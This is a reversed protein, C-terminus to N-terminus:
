IILKKVEAIMQRLDIDPVGELSFQLSQPDTTISDSAMYSKIAPSVGHLGPGGHLVSHGLIKGLARFTGTVCLSQNHTPFRHDAEGEFFLLKKNSSLLMGEDLINVAISLYERVPGSGVADEEEFRVKLGVRLNTQPNKYVGLVERKLQEDGDMRSVFIRQEPKDEIVNGKRFM